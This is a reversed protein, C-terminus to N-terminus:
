FPIDEAYYEEETVLSYGEKLKKELESWSSSQFTEGWKADPEKKVLYCTLDSKVVGDVIEIPKVKKADSKMEMGIGWNGISIDALIPLPLDIGMRKLIAPSEMIDQMRRLCPLVYEDKVWGTIADHITGTLKVLDNKFYNSIEPVAMLIMEAGFGQVPSNIALREAEAMLGRDPSNIQPLHRIRGSLTRVCSMVHVLQRQRQHWVELGPYAEFYRKRMQKAEKDSCVLGYKTEAYERFKKWGMGYIFGFNVAKAKKREEKLQAKREGPDKIHEVAKEPTMGFVMEYTSDHIDGGSRFIRLMNPEGSIAAAIRLEMQSYDLEFHTYGPPAGILSRIHPDRPVQQLNPDACSPRGTVTGAVKFTPYMMNGIMRRRWGEIFSSLQKFYGRYKLLTSIVPHDDRMKILYDEATSPEGGDTYGAPKLGLKNFLLDNLQAASNWNFAPDGTYRNLSRLTRRIDRRLKAEAQNMAEEEVWIGNIEMQEYERAAPMVEWRFLNNLAEDQELRKQFLRQLRITAYGDWAAYKVQEAKQEPTTVNGKKVNVDVDWNDMELHVRANYKLGQPSNEDLLHSALNVDFSLPMRCGFMYHLWLNDFKGNAGSVEKGESIVCLKKWFRRMLGHPITEHDIVYVRSLFGIVSLSIKSTKLRMNLGNTELDYSLAKQRKAFDLIEQLQSAKKIWTYKLDHKVMEEQHYIKGFMRFDFLIGEWHRPDRLSMAPHYAAFIKWGEKTPIVTGHVETVKTGRTLAKLALAGLTIVYEPNIRKLDEILYEKCAKLAAASVKGNEPKRCRIAPVYYVDEAKINAAELLQSMLRYSNGQGYKGTSDETLNPADGVIVVKAKQNGVGQLCTHNAFNCLECSNCPKNFM